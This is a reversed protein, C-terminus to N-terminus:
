VAYLLGNDGRYVEVPAFLHAYRTLKDAIGECYVEPYAWFGDGHMNRTLWFDVGAKAIHEDPVTGLVYGYFFQDCDKVSQAEFEPSLPDSEKADEPLDAWKIAALYADKFTNFNM